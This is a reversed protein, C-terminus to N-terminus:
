KVDWAEVFNEQFRPVLVRSRKVDFGIDAPAKLGSAVEKFEGGFTGRYLAAGEWSSIIFDAGVAVIGDLSGKPLKTPVGIAKGKLDYKQLEAAGFTVVYLADKTALVGNPKNLSKSKVLTKLVPKKGPEIVYVGDTGTAEFKADLGSDTVYVRGDPGVSLDNVFTAGAVKVEGKAVGTKRDFMRVTDIDAVYVLGGLVVLGKPANLTVGKEGGAFLKAALVKGDASLETVYGNNDKATPAGNINSVLYTDTDPDYFVSEPTSLGDKFTVAATPAAAAGADAAPAQALAVPASLLLSALLSGTIRKM